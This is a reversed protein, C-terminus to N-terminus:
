REVIFADKFRTENKLLLLHEEAEQRSAFNGTLYRTLGNVNETYVIPFHKKSLNDTDFDGSSVFFQIRFVPEKTKPTEAAKGTTTKQPNQSPPNRTAATSPVAAHRVTPSAEPRYRLKGDIGYSPMHAIMYRFESINGKNHRTFLERSDRTFLQMKDREAPDTVITRAWTEGAPLIFYHSVGGAPKKYVWVLQYSAKVARVRRSVPDFELTALAMAGGDKYRDRQNSVFNGLSYVTLFSDEFEMPQLVHPHAGIVMDIGMEKSIRVLSKQATNPLSQYEDGWHYFAIVFDAQLERARLVDAKIQATDIYNVVNPETVPIGNTGYTYNLLALRAGKKELILPYSKRREDLDKFTGTHPIQLSDLVDITRELGKKRRDLSHNNATVLVDVGANKLAAALEDPSSFTPYGTFPKGALTVELNAIAIDARRIAPAIYQFCPDYNYNDEAPHYAGRIQPSHQMVDGIFLLDIYTKGDAQALARLHFAPLVAFVLLATAFYRSPSYANVPM